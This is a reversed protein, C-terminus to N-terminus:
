LRKVAEEVVKNHGKEKEIGVIVDEIFSTV